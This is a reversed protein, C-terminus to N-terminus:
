CNNVIQRQHACEHAFSGVELVVYMLVRHCINCVNKTGITLSEPAYDHRMLRKEEFEDVRGEEYRDVGLRM